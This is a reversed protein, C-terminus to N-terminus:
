RGSELYAILAFAARKVFEEERKSWDRIKKWAFPTKEFLNMCVQDCVDWSSVDRVWEEMQTETLKQPEDVMAAVIM